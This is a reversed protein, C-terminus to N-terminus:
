SPSAGRRVVVVVVIMIAVVVVVVTPLGANPGRVGELAPQCQSPGLEPDRHAGGEAASLSSSTTTTADTRLDPTLSLSTDGRDVVVSGAAPRSSWQGHDRWMQREEM